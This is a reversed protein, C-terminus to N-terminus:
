EEELKFAELGKIFIKDTDKDVAEPRGYTAVYAMDDSVYTIQTIKTKELSYDARYADIGDDTTYTDYDTVTLNYGLLEMVQAFQEKDECLTAQDAPMSVTSVTCGEYYASLESLESTTNECEEPLELSYSTQLAINKGYYVTMNGSLDINSSNKVGCASLSLTLLALIFLKKM